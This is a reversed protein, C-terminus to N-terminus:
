RGGKTGRSTQRDRAQWAREVEMERVAWAKLFPHMASGLTAITTTYRYTRGM